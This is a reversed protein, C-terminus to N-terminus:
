GLGTRTRDRIDSGHALLGLTTRAARSEAKSAADPATYFLGYGDLIVHSFEALRSAAPLSCPQLGPSHAPPGFYGGRGATMAVAAADSPSSRRAWCAQGAYNAGM